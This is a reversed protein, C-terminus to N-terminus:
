VEYRCSNSFKKDFLSILEAKTKNYIKINKSENLCIIQTDSNLISSLSSLDESIELYEYTYNADAYTNTFYHYYSYIYQNINKPKRLASITMPITDKCLTGVTKITTSLMPIVNHTTSILDDAPYRPLKLADTIMDMGNRCQSSFILRKIFNDVFEFHICPTDDIFFDTLDMPANPFLDDNFYIFRDPLDSINWLFSEITCSSFCPLYEQPIFDKHYIIRVNDWNVWAPVQSEAAVILIITDVFPLYKDVGRFLYKLTGWSRFRCPNYNANGFRQIYSYRWEPDSSDVYPLVVSVKNNM